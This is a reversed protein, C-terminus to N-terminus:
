NGCDYLNANSSPGGPNESATGSVSMYTPSDMVKCNQRVWQAISQHRGLSDGLVFRLKGSRVLSSLKDVSVEDYQDLFGGFTLVPRGTALIYPAASNAGGTAMLYTSPQTNELLYNLLNQDVGNGPGGASPGAMMNNNNSFEPMTLQNGDDIRRPRMSGGV